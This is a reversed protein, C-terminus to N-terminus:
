DNSNERRFEKLFELVFKYMEVGLGSGLKEVMPLANELQKIVPTYIDNNESPLVPVSNEDLPEIYKSTAVYNFSGDNMNKEEVVAGSHPSHIFKGDGIYIGCHSCDNKKADYKLLIQGIKVNKYGPQIKERTTIYRYKTSNEISNFLWNTGACRYSPNGGPANRIISIILGNCDMTEYPTGLFSRALRVADVAKIM